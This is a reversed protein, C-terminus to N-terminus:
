RPHRALRVIKRFALDESLNNHVLHLNHGQDNGERILKETMYTVIDDEEAHVAMIGGHKAVEAFVAWLHGYPVRLGPFTTFIKFSAIGEQVAEGIQGLTAPAVRGALIYHFAFDTYAHRFVERRSDVEAPISLPAAEHGLPPNLGAFDIVTTVRWLSCRPQKQPQTM